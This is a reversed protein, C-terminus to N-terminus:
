RVTFSVIQKDLRHDKSPQPQLDLHKLRDEKAQVPSWNVLGYPSSLGSGDGSLLHVKITKLHLQFISLSNDLSM